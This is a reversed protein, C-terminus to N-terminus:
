INNTVLIETFEKFKSIDSLKIKTNNISYTSYGALVEKLMNFFSEKDDIWPTHLAIYMNPKTQQIFDKMSPLLFKEGGEIDIKILSIDKIKEQNIFDEFSISDVQISQQSFLMSSMSDGFDTKSGFSVKGTTPAVAKQYTTINKFDNLSLNKRLNQFAKPDPEFAYCHKSLQSGFLVTPGIWAGIDIYNKDQSLFSKLVNFTNDEWGGDKVYDWFKWDGNVGTQPDVKYEIDKVKILM